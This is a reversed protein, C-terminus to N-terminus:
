KSVWLGHINCYEYAIVNSGKATVFTYEPTDGAKLEIREILVNDVILEIFQIYHGEVSPHMTEKGVKVLYGNSVEKIYPVHKEVSNDASKAELVEM